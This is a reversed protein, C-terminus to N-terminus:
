REGGPLILGLTRLAPAFQLSDATGMGVYFKGAKVAEKWEEESVRKPRSDALKEALRTREKELGAVRRDATDARGELAEIHSMARTLANALTNCDKAMGYAAPFSRRYTLQEREEETLEFRSPGTPTPDSSLNATTTVFRGELRGVRERLDALERDHREITEYIDPRNM